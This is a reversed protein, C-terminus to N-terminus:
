ICSDPLPNFFTNYKIWTVHNSPQRGMYPLFILLDEGSSSPQNGHCKTHLIRSELVVFYYIIVKHQGQSIYIYVEIVRQHVELKPLLVPTM